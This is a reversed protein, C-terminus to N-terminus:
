IDLNKWTIWRSEGAVRSLQVSVDEITTAISEPRSPFIFIADSQVATNFVQDCQGGAYQCFQPPVSIDEILPIQKGDEAMEFGKQRLMCGDVAENSNSIRGAAGSARDRSGGPRSARREGRRDAFGRGEGTVSFRGSQIC